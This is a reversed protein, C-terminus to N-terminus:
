IDKRVNRRGTLFADVISFAWIAIGSGGLVYLLTLNRERMGEMIRSMADPGLGLDPGM